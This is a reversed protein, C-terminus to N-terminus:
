GKERTGTGNKKDPGQGKAGTQAGHFRQVRGGVEGHRKSRAGRRENGTMACQSSEDYRPFM